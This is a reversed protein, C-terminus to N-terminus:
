KNSKGESKLIRERHTIQTLMILIPRSTNRRPNLRYPVRQTEPVQNLIETGMNPFNEVM